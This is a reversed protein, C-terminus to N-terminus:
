LFFYVLIVDRDVSGKENRDKNGQNVPFWLLLNSIRGTLLASIKFIVAEPTGKCM